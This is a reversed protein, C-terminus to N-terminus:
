TWEQGEQAGPIWPPAEPGTTVSPVDCTARRPLCKRLVLPVALPGKPPPTLVLTLLRLRNRNHNALLPPCRTDALTPLPNAHLPPLLLIPILANHLTHKTTAPNSRIQEDPNAHGIHHGPLNLARGQRPSLVNQPGQSQKSPSQPPTPAKPTPSRTLSYNCRM